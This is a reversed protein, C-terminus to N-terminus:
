GVGGRKFILFLTDFVDSGQYIHLNSVPLRLVNLRVSFGFVAYESEERCRCDFSSLVSFFFFFSYIYSHILAIWVTRIYLSTSDTGSNNRDRDTETAPCITMIQLIHKCSVRVCGAAPPQGHWRLCCTVNIRVSSQLHGWIWDDQNMEGSPHSSTLPALSTSSNICNMRAIILVLAQWEFDAQTQHTAKM